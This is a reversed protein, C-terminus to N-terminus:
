ALQFFRQKWSTKGGPMKWLDFGTKPYSTPLTRRQTAGETLLQPSKQLDPKDTMGKETKRIHFVPKRLDRNWEMANMSLDLHADFILELKM